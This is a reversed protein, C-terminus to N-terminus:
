VSAPRSVHHKIRVLGNSYQRVAVLQQQLEETRQQIAELEDRTCTPGTVPGDNAAITSGSADEIGEPVHLLNRLVYHEFIDMNIDFARGLKGVLDDCGRVLESETDDDLHGDVESGLEQM